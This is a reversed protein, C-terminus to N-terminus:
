CFVFINWSELKLKPWLSLTWFVSRLTVGLVQKRPRYLVSVYFFYLVNIELRDSNFSRLEHPQTFVKWNVGWINAANSVVPQPATLIDFGFLSDAHSLMHIIPTKVFKM